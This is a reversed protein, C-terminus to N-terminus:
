EKGRTTQRDPLHERMVSLAKRIYTKVTGLPLRAHAAIEQHSMGRFFALAVLQRHLPELRALAGHAAGHEQISTLLEQASEQEPAEPLLSEPEPHTEAEDERRLADLARTRCITMLWAMVKGRQADYRAAERWVQLYVDGTVEEACEPRRTIRLALGYVRGITADYFSSLAAEDQRSMASLWDRYASETHEPAKGPAPHATRDNVARIRVLPVWDDNAVTASGLYALSSSM